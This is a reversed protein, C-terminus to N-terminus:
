LPEIDKISDNIQVFSTHKTESYLTKDYIEDSIIILDNKEALFVQYGRAALERAIGCGNIGGGIICVDYIPNKDHLDKKLLLLLDLLHM